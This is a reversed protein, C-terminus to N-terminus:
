AKFADNAFGNKLLHADGVSINHVIGNEILRLYGEPTIGDVTGTTKSEHQVVTVERGELISMQKWRPIWTSLDAHKQWEDYETEFAALIDALIRARNFTQGCALALSTGVINDPFDMINVNLGIGVIAYEAQMGMCSMSCLIGALKRNDLWVDNPWKVRIRECYPSLARHMACAAIISLQSAKAAACNPRLLVSFYLNCGSPSAWSRGDRGRGGTQADAAVVLGEPAGKQAFEQLLLNTSEVEEEFVYHRGIFRTQLLPSLSDKSLDQSM